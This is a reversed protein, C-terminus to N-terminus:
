ISHLLVLNIMWSNRKNRNKQIILKKNRHYRDKRNGLELKETQM